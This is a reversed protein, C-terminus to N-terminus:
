RVRVKVNTTLAALSRTNRLINFCITSVSMGIAWSTYGKLKIIENASRQTRRM